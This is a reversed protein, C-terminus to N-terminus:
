IIVKFVVKINDLILESECNNCIVKDPLSSYLEFLTNYSTNCHYCFYEYYAKIVKNKELVRLIDYINKNSIKIKRKILSPYIFDNKKFLKLLSIVDDKNDIKIDSLIRVLLDQSM